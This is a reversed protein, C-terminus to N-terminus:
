GGASVFIREIEEKRIKQVAEEMKSVTAQGSKSKVFQLAVRNVEREARELDALFKEYNERNQYVNRVLLHFDEGEAQLLRFYHELLLEMEQLQKQRIKSSYVGKRDEALIKDTKQRIGARAEELSKGKRAREVAAELALKKTFLFNLAFTERSRKFQLFTFFFLIPVVVEWVTLPKPDIVASAVARALSRERVHISKYKRDMIGPSFNDM